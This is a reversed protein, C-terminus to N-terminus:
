RCSAEGSLSDEGGPAQPSRIEIRGRMHPMQRLTVRPDPMVESSNRLNLRFARGLHALVLVGELQAFQMGICQHRGGGFPAFAERKKGQLKRGLFREPRFEDGADWFEPLRHTVWASTLVSTGAEVFFGGIECDRAAKRAIYWIPPYLRLSENFVATTYPLDSLDARSPARGNLVRDLEEHMRQESEPHDFLLKWAWSLALATTEHGGVLFNMFEDRIQENSLPGAPTEAEVLTTLLDDPRDDLARRRAIIEYLVGNVAKLDAAFEINRRPRITAPIGFLSFSFEGMDTMFRTVGESLIAIREPDLDESFLSRGAVRLTLMTMCRTVDIEEGSAAFARWDQSCRNTEEVMDGFYSEMRPRRFQGDM